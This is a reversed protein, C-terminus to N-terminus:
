NRDRGSARRPAYCNRRHLIRQILKPTTLFEEPTHGTMSTAAPSVVEYRGDPLSMRYIMDPANDVLRRLRMASEDLM